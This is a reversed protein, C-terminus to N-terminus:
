WRPWFSSPPWATPAVRSTGSRRRMAPWVAFLMTGIYAAYGRGVLFTLILALMLTCLLHIATNTVLLGLQVDPYLTGDLWYSFVVTPRFFRVSQGTDTWWLHDWSNEVVASGTVLEVPGRDGEQIIQLYRYDDPELLPTRFVPFTCVLVAVAVSAGTAWWWRDPRM